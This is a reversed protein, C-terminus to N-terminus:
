KKDEARCPRGHKKNLELTRQKLLTLAPLIQAKESDSFANVLDFLWAQRREVSKEVLGRGDATLEIRKMRRDSPDESRTLLGAEILSDLLQSVAANTIGLHDALDQVSDPGHHYLRFLTNIQSLSLGSERNHKIFIHFTRHMSAEMWERLADLFLDKDSM